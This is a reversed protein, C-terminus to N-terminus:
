TVTRTDIATVTIGTWSNYFPSRADPNQIVRYTFAVDKATLPEGDHWTLHPRLRVTYTTAAADVKWSEALDGILHNNKDYTLLGAFVLESVSTDVLDTAYIPNANTFSGLVGETYTGGPAPGLVQYYGSLSRIQAAVCAISLVLLLLWSSVFRRVAALRELRKFLDNELRQEAQVGLEEVQRRQLRLRRRFRLRLARKRDLRGGALRSRSKRGPIRM